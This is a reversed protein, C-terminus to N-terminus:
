GNVTVEAWMGATYHPPGGEVEPKGESEAVAQLYETPDAAIPITCIIAYRGPQDLRATGVATFMDGGPPVLIVTEVRPFFAALEGEPLQVLEEVTRTEHNPLRIAVLEHIEAPSDNTLQIRTGADIETPLGVFAYDKTTVDLTPTTPLPKTTTPAATTTVAASSTTTAVSRETTSPGQPAGQVEAGSSCAAVALAVAAITACLTARTYHSTFQM